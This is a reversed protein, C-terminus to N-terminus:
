RRLSSRVFFYLDIRGCRSRTPFLPPPVSARINHSLAIRDRDMHNSKAEDAAAANYVCVCVCVLVCVCASVCVRVSVVLSDYPCSGAYPCLESLASEALFASASLGCVKLCNSRTYFPCVLLGVSVCVSVCAHM